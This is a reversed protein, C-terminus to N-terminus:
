LQRYWPVAARSGAYVGALSQEPEPRPAELATEVAEDLEVEIRRDIEALEEETAKGENRLWDVYRDIPDRRRWEELEEEPVYTQADHQAHGKMRYTVVEILSMGGGSRAREAAVRTADYVALVDNGDVQQGPVGYGKAMDVLNELATEEATRTAFAWGNNEVVVVLPLQLAAAFNLGEHAAGTRSGGDGLFVLGIREEARLKFSLAIGDMVCVTTGLSSILGIYGIEHDHFHTTTDRGGSPACVSGMCQCFIRAPTVGHVLMAGLNRIAPTLYDGERLAYAAGVSEGEQGLSRYLGGALKGQRFLTELREELSRTLRMYYYLEHLQARTLEAM